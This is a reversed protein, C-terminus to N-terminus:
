GRGGGARRELADALKAFRRELVRYDSLVGSRRAVVVVDHGRVADSFCRFLSRLRRKLRNRTVAKPVTKKAVVLGLRGHDLHNPSFYFVVDPTLLKSSSFVADFSKKGALRSFRSRIRM